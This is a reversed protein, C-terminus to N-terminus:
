LKKIEITQVYINNQIETKTDFRKNKNVLQGVLLLGHGRNKGKSSFSEKGIKSKDIENDFTNSVIIKLEKAENPYAEFGMQKKESEVSAEIANDLLVGMIRGLDREEKLNLDFITSDKARKSINIDVDIGKDEAEQVKFYCLGKIGNPPLYGFKAYKEKNIKYKDKVIEDIYKIIEENDQNECIKARITRFENKIEHRLIRQREIEKEFTEMLSLINDYEAILKDNYIIQKMLSNLMIIMVVMAILYALINDTFRFEKILTYFFLLICILTAVSLGILKKNNDIKSNVLKNLPNRLIYTLLLLLIYVLLNVVISAALKNYYIETPIKFIKTFVFLTLLDPIIVMLTYVFVTLISKYSNVKFIYINFVVTIICMIMTKIIGNFIIAIITYLISAILIAISLKVLNVGRKENLVITNFLLIGIMVIISSIFVSIIQYM